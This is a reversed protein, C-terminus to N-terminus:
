ATASGAVTLTAAEHAKWNADHLMSELPEPPVYGRVRYLVRLASARVSGDEDALAEILAAVPAQEGFISLAWVAAARVEWAPDHLAAVLSRLSSIEKGEALSRVAAVRVHSKEDRLGALTDDGRAMPRNGLGLRNLVAPLLSAPVARPKWRQPERTGLVNLSPREDAKYEM